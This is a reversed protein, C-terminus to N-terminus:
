LDKGCVGCVRYAGFDTARSEAEAEPHPCADQVYALRSAFEAVSRRAAELNACLAAAQQRTLEVRADFATTLKKM